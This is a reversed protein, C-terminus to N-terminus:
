APAVRRAYDDLRRLEDAYLRRLALPAVFREVVGRVGAAAPWVTEIRVRSTTGEADVTFTTVLGSLEDSETLVRGPDPETVRMRFSRTGGGAKVDFTIVTGAGVGGEHIVPRTFAPPLFEPHHERYDAILRYVLEAPAGVPGEATVRVDAM